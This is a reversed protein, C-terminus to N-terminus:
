NLCRESSSSFPKVGAGGRQDDVAKANTTSSGAAKGLAEFLKMLHPCRTVSIIWIKFSDTRIRSSRHKESDFLYVILARSRVFLYERLLLESFSRSSDFCFAYKFHIRVDALKVDLDLNTSFLVICVM